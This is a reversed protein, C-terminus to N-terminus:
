RSWKANPRCVGMVLTRSLGGGEFGMVGLYAGAVRHAALLAAVGGTSLPWAPIARLGCGM